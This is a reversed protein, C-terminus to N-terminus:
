QLGLTALISKIIKILWNQKKIQNEVTICGDMERILGCSQLFNRPISKMEGNSGCNFCTLTEIIEFDDSCVKHTITEVIDTWQPYIRVVKTYLPYSNHKHFGTILVHPHYGCKQCHFLEVKKGKMLEPFNLELNIDTPTLM